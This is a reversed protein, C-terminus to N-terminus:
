IDNEEGIEEAQKILQHQEVVYKSLRKDFKNMAKEYERWPKEPANLLEHCAEYMKHVNDLDGVWYISPFVRTFITDLLEITRYQAVKNKKSM